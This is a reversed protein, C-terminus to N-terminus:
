LYQKCSDALYLVKLKIHIQQNTMYILVITINFTVHSAYIDIMHGILITLHSKILLWRDLKQSAMM